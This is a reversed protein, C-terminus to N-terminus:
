LSTKILSSRICYLICYSWTFPYHLLSGTPLLKLAAEADQRIGDLQLIQIFDHYRQPNNSVKNLLATILHGVRMSETTNPAYNTTQEFVAQGIINQAKLHYALINCLGRNDALARIVDASARFM